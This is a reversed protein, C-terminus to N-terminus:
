LTTVPQLVESKILQFVDEILSKRDAILLGSNTISCNEDNINISLEDFDLNSTHTLCRMSDNFYDDDKDEVYSLLISSLLYELNDPCNRLKISNLKINNISLLKIAIKLMTKSDIFVKPSDSTKNLILTGHKNMKITSEYM